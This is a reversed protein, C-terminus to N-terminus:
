REVISLHVNKGSLIRFVLDKDHISLLVIFDLLRVMEVQEHINPKEQFIDLTMIHRNPFIYPERFHSVFPSPIQPFEFTEQAFIEVRMIMDVDAVSLKQWTSQDDLRLM